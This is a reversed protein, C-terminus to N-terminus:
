FPWPLMAEILRQTEEAKANKLIDATKGHEVLKGHSLIVIEDALQKVLELDHTIILIGSAFVPKLEKLLAAIQAQITVDLQSTPEDLILFESHIAIARAIAVRQREGGSLQEPKRILLEQKLRVCDLAFRVRKQKELRPMWHIGEGIISEVTWDPDLSLYPNQFVMQVRTFYAQPGKKLIQNLPKGKFLIEGESPQILRVLLRALTTKGSASQGVLGTIAGRRLRIDVCDLAKFFLGRTFIGHRVAYYKSVSKLDFIFKEKM